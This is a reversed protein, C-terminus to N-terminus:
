VEIILQSFYGLASIVLCCKMLCNDVMLNPHYGYYWILNEEVGKLYFPSSKFIPLIIKLRKKSLERRKVALFHRCGDIENIHINKLTHFEDM